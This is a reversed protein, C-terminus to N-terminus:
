YDVTMGGQTMDKVYEKSHLSLHQSSTNQIIQSGHTHKVPLCCDIIDTMVKSVCYPCKSM